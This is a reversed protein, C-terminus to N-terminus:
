DGLETKTLEREADHIQLLVEILTKYFGEERSMAGMLASAIAKLSPTLLFAAYEMGLDEYLDWEHHCRSCLASLNDEDNTGGYVIPM